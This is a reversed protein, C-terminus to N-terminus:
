KRTVYAIAEEMTDFPEMIHPSAFRNYGKLLIKKVGTIGIIAGCIMLHKSDNAFDYAAKMFKPTTYSDTVDVIIRFREGKEVIRKTEANIIAAMEDDKTSKLDSHIIDKGNVKLYVIQGM